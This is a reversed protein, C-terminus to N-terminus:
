WPALAATAARLGRCGAGLAGGWCAASRVTNCCGCLIGSPGGKEVVAVGELLTEGQAIPLCSVKLQTDTNSHNFALSCALVTAVEREVM